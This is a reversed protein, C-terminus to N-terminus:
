VETIAYSAAQVVASHQQSVAGSLRPGGARTDRRGGRDGTTAMADGGGYGEDRTCNACRARGRGQARVSGM